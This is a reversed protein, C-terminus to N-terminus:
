QGLRELAEDSLQLRSLVGIDESLKRVGQVGVQHREPPENTHRAMQVRAVALLFRPNVGYDCAKICEGSLMCSKAWQQAEAPGQGLRVLDLVGTITAKPDAAALGAPATIPCVEVCAGCKV